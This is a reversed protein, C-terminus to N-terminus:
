CSFIVYKLGVVNAQQYEMTAGKKSVTFFIVLKLNCLKQCLQTYVQTSQANKMSYKFCMFVAIQQMIVCFEDHDSDGDDDVLSENM